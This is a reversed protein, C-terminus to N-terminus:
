RCGLRNQLLRVASLANDVYHRSYMKLVNKDGYGCNLAVHGISAANAAEIDLITDGIMWANEDTYKQANLLKLALLIPEPHPKPNVVDEKGVVTVFHQLIKFHELLYEM